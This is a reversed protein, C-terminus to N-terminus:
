HAIFTRYYMQIAKNWVRFVTMWWAISLGTTVAIALIAFIAIATFYWLSPVQLTGAQHALMLAGVLSWFGLFLLIPKPSFIDVGGGQIRDQEFRFGIVAGAVFAPGFLLWHGVEVDNMLIEKDQIDAPLESPPSDALNM